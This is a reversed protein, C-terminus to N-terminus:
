YFMVMIQLISIFYYTHSCAIDLFCVTTSTCVMPTPNRIMQLFFPSVLFITFLLKPLVCMFEGELSNTPPNYWMTTYAQNKVTRTLDQYAFNTKTNKHRSVKEIVSQRVNEDGMKSIAMRRASRAAIKGPNDFGCRYAIWKANDNPWNRGLRGACKTQGPMMKDEVQEIHAYYFPGKIKRIKLLKNPAINIFLLGKWGPPLGNAIWWMVMKYTSWPDAANEVIMPPLDPDSELVPKSLSLQSTKERDCPKVQIAPLGALNEFEPGLKDIFILDTIQLYLNKLTIILFFLLAVVLVCFLM